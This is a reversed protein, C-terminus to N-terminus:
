DYHDFAVNSGGAGYPEQEEPSFPGGELIRLLSTGEAMSLIPTEDLAREMEQFRSRRALSFADSDCNVRRGLCELFECKATFSDLLTPATPM